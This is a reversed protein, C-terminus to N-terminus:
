RETTDLEKHDWPSCGALARQGHSKGPLCVPTPQKGLPSKRVWPDFGTEQVVPLNKVIWALLSAGSCELPVTLAKVKKM